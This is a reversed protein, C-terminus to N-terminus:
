LLKANNELIPTILKLLKGNNITELTNLHRINHTDTGTFDILNDKLLRETIKNVKSGYHQSLSLLNLQFLCGLEKLEHYKNYNTHYFIYREPHALIPKYGAIQINFLIENLNIPPNFYSLEVLIYQDKIPLLDKNSLLKEFNNDIMYEAAARINIDELGHSKLYNTLEFLKQQIDKSTNNWVGDMVHPTTVFNKIGFSSLKQILETSDEFSKSGDDINPLLHSHIDIYTKSFLTTIPQKNKKFFSLM